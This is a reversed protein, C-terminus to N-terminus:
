AAGLGGWDWGGPVGGPFSRRVNAADLEQGAATSFVLEGPEPESDEDLAQFAATALKPLGLTRRSKRTKNDGSARV